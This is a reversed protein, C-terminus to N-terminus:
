SQRRKGKNGVVKWLVEIFLTSVVSFDATTLHKNYLVTFQALLLLLVTNECRVQQGPKQNM